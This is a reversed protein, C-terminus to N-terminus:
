RLGQASEQALAFPSAIILAEESVTVTSHM